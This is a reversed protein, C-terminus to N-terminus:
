EDVAPEPSDGFIGNCLLLYFRDPRPVHDISELQNKHDGETELSFKGYGIARGTPDLDYSLDTIKSLPLSQVRVSIIGSVKVLRSSTILLRTRHWGLLHWMLRAVVVLVACWLLMLLFRAGIGHVAVYVSIAVAGVLAAAAELLVRVLVVWHLRIEFIIQENVAVYRTCRM